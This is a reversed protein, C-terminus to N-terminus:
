LRIYSYGFRDSDTGDKKAQKTLESVLGRVKDLDTTWETLWIRGFPTEEYARVKVKMPGESSM